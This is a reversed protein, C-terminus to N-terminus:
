ASRSLEPPSRIAPSVSPEIVPVGRFDERGGRGRERRWRVHAAVHEAGEATRRPVATCVPVNRMDPRRSGQRASGRGRRQRHREPRHREHQGQQGLRDADRKPISFVIETASKTTIETIPPKREDSTTIPMVTKHGLDPDTAVPVRSLTVAGITVAAPSMTVSGANTGRWRGPPM